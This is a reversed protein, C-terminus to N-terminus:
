QVGLKKMAAIVKKMEAYEKKMEAYEKEVEAKEKKVETNEKKVETNEEQLAHITAESSQHKSEYEHLQKRLQAVEDKYDQKILELQREYTLDLVTTNM